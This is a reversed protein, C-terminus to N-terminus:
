SAHVLDSSIDSHSAHAVVTGNDIVLLQPSEHRIDFRQEIENSIHRYCFIDLYFYEVNEVDTNQLGKEFRKLMMSSIPCATSHKFIITKKDSNGKLHSLQQIDELAIRTM